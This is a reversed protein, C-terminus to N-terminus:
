APEVVHDGRKEPYGRITKELAGIRNPCPTRDLPQKGIRVRETWGPAQPDVKGTTQVSVALM